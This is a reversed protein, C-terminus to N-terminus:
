LNKSWYFIFLVTLDWMGKGQIIQECGIQRYHNREEESLRTNEFIDERSIPEIIPEDKKDEEESRGM